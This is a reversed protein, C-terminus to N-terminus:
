VLNVAYISNSGIDKRAVFYAKKKINLKDAIVIRQGVTYHHVGTHEGLSKEDDLDIIKGIKPPLYEDIFKSFNRPGIFCIGTSSKKRSVRRLGISDAIDRVETKILDGIPFVIRDFLNRDLQSLFFSQDKLEDISKLLRFEQSFFILFFYETKKKFPKTYVEFVNTM